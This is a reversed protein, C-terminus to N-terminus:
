FPRKASSDLGIKKKHQMHFLLFRRINQTYTDAMSFLIVPVGGGVPFKVGFKFALGLFTERM